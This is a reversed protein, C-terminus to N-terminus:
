LCKNNDCYWPQLDQHTTSLDINSIKLTSFPRFTIKSIIFFFNNLFAQLDDPSNEMQDIRGELVHRGKKKRRLHNLSNKLKSTFRQFLSPMIVPISEIKAMSHPKFSPCHYLICVIEIAHSKWLGSFFFHIKYSFHNFCHFLLYDSIM